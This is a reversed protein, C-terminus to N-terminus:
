DNNEAELKEFEVIWVWPNTDWGYGRKANLKEWTHMFDVTPPELWGTNMCDECAYVGRMGHDCVVGEFGELIAQTDTIDQLREAKVGAVKLFLRAAKKPMHISPRWRPPEAATLWDARYVFLDTNTLFSDITACPAWTERVWLIDGVKYPARAAFCDKEYSRKCFMDRPMVSNCWEDVLKEKIVRRTVTKRGELIAQVMETSFLIPKM